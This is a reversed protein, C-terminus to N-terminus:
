GYNRWNGWLHSDEWEESPEHGAKRLALMILAVHYGEHWIMHQLYFVPHDYPGSVQHDSDFASKLWSRIATESLALQKKIASMDESMIWEDGVQIFLEEYGDYPSGSAHQFWYSRVENVHSFQAALTMGDDSPKSQSLDTTVLTALSNVCKCQRDWSELLAESVNM